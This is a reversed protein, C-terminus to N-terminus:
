VHSLSLRLHVNSFERSQKLDAKRRLIDIKDQKSELEIKFIGQNGQRQQTRM